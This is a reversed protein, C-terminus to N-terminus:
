YTGDENWESKIKANKYDLIQCVEKIAAKIETDSNEKYAKAMEQYKVEDAKLQVSGFYAPKGYGLKLAIEGSFGMAFCLLELQEKSLNKYHIKGKFISGQKVVEYPIKGKELINRKGHHYFKYGVLKWNELMAETIHPAKFSPLLETYAEGEELVLQGVSIKSKSGMAGFLDCIICVGENERKNVIAEYERGKEKVKSLCSHSISECVNRICGKLSSGPIAYQDNWKYFAKYITQREDIFQMGSGIHLPTLVELKFTIVGSELPERGKVQYPAYKIFRVTSYPKAM